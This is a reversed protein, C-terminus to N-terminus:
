STAGPQLACRGPACEGPEAEAAGPLRGLLEALVELEQESFREEFMARVAALHSRSAEELKRRGDGTLVAYTVRADVACTAKEVLGVQELGKLLRTVGSPTLQLGAALDVRRMHDEDAQALLLLAEYDNITLGHESSLQASLVRTAWAHGRLFRVWAQLAASEQDTLVQDTM